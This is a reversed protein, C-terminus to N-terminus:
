KERNKLYNCLDVLSTQYESKPYKDILILAREIYSDLVEQSKEIGGGDVIKSYILDISKENTGAERVLNKIIEVEEPTSKELVTLLPLTINQEKLDGCSPKGTQSEPAYDLMDDKIQFAMGLADGIERAMAIEKETAGTALAGVGCSIGLLTATKKYIIDLYSLYDINLNRKYYDQNLEGECLSKLGNLIYLIIDHQQSKMGAEFTIALIYDGTLISNRSGWFKNVSPKGHRMSAEDIVDDHILSATHIMEVLMAALYVRENLVSEKNHINGLLMVLIPRVGKGRNEFIYNLIESMQSSDSCLSNRMYGEYLVLDRQISAKIEDLKVMINSDRCLLVRNKKFRLLNNKVKDTTCIM